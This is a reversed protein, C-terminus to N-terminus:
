RRVRRKSYGHFFLLVGCGILAAPLLPLDIGAMEGAGAALFLAGIILWFTSVSVRVALRVAASGLVILGVGLAGAGRPLTPVLMVVGIWVFFLGWSAADIAQGRRSRRIETNEELPM